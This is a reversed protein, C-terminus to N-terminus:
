EDFLDMMELLSKANSNGLNLAKQYLQRALKLDEPVGYGYNYCQGLSCMADSNGQEVAKKYWYVAQQPDEYSTALGQGDYCMGLLWQAKANGQEAYKKATPFVINAGGNYYWKEAEALIAEEESLPASKTQNKDAPKANMRETFNVLALRAMFDGLDAAKQLWYGAKEKDEPVGRGDEYCSALNCMAGTNGQEAAQQYWYLALKEDACPTWDIDSDYYVGMSFQADANGKEAYKKIVPLADKFKGDDFLKQASELEKLEASTLQSPISDSKKEAVGLNYGCEPCFKYEKDLKFGCEPCFKFAM